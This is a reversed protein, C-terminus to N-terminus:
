DRFQGLLPHRVSGGRAGVREARSMRRKRLMSSFLSQGHWTASGVSRYVFESRVTRSPRTWTRDKLFPPSYVQSVPTSTAITYANAEEARVSHSCARGRVSPEPSPFSWRLALPSRRAFAPKHPERALRVWAGPFTHGSTVKSIVVCAIVVAGIWVAFVSM